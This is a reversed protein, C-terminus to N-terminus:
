QALAAGLQRSLDLARGRQKELAEIKVWLQHCERTKGNLEMAKSLRTAVEEAFADRLSQAESSRLEDIGELTQLRTKIKELLLLLNDQGSLSIKNFDVSEKDEAALALVAYLECLKSELTEVSGKQEEKGSKRSSHAGLKSSPSSVDLSSTTYANRGISIIEAVADQYQETDVVDDNTAAPSPLLASSDNPPLPQPNPPTDVALEPFSPTFGRIAKNSNPSDTRSPQAPIDAAFPLEDDLLAPTVRQSDPVTTQERMESDYYSALNLDSGTPAAKVNLFSVQAAGNGTTAGGGRETSVQHGVEFGPAVEDVKTGAGVSGGHDKVSKLAELQARASSYLAGLQLFGKSLVKKETSIRDNEADLTDGRQKHEELLQLLDQNSETLIDIRHLLFSPSDLDPSCDKDSTNSTTSTANQQARPRLTMLEKKPHQVSSGTVVVEEQEDFTKVGLEGERTMAGVEVELQHSQSQPALSFPLQKHRTGHAPGLAWTDQENLNAPSPLYHPDSESRPPAPTSSAPALSEPQNVAKRQDLFSKVAMEDDSTTDEYDGITSNLENQAEESVSYSCSTPQDLLGDEVLQRKTDSLAALDGELYREPHLSLRSILHRRILAHAASAFGKVKRRSITFVAAMVRARLGLHLQQQQQQQQERKKGRKKVGPKRQQKKTVTVTFNRAM